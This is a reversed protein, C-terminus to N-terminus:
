ILSDQNIRYKISILRLLLFTGLVALNEVTQIREKYVTEKIITFIKELHLEFFLHSIRNMRCPRKIVLYVHSTDHSNGHKVECPPCLDYDLCQGCKYRIGQITQRCVDCVAPSHTVENIAQTKFNFVPLGLNRFFSKCPRPIKVFVHEPDHNSGFCAGCMDFDECHGCKYRIGVIPTHCVDCQIGPHVPGPYSTQFSDRVKEKFARLDLPSDPESKSRAQAQTQAEDRELSCNVLKQQLDEVATRLAESEFGEEAKEAMAHSLQAKLSANQQRLSSIEFKSQYLNRRLETISLSKTEENSSSSM